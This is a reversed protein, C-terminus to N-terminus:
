EFAEAIARLKETESLARPFNYWPGQPKENYYPRNCDPCGSTRFAEDTILNALAQRKEEQRLEPNLLWDPKLNNIILWRAIQMRRYAGLSPAPRNGLPTGPVPTFAFLGFRIGKQCLTEFLEILQSETEGLGVIIHTAMTGKFNQRAACLSDYVREWSGGKISRYLGPDALDLPLCLTDIGLEGARQLQSDDFHHASISLPVPRLKLLKQAWDLAKDVMARGATLQLCIRKLFHSTLLSFHSTLAALVVEDTYPQWSVRSLFDSTKLKGPHRGQPCFACTKPCDEGLMLYATTPLIDVRASNLGLAAATGSSLRIM